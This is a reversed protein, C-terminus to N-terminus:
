ISQERVLRAKASPLVTSDPPNNPDISGPYFGATHLVDYGMVEALTYYTYARVYSAEETNEFVKIMAELMEANSHTSLYHGAGRLAGWRAEQPEWAPGQIFEFM